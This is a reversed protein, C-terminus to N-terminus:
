MSSIVGLVYLYAVLSTVTMVAGVATIALIGVTLIVKDM